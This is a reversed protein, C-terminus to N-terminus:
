LKEVMDFWEQSSAVNGRSWCSGFYYTVPEGPIIATYLLAHNNGENCAEVKAPRPMYVAVGIMGEEPEISQDSPREWIAIRDKWAREEVVDHRLMGCAVVLQDFDGKYTDVVKCFNTGSTVTVQKDLSVMHGDVEWEPYHLTFTIEDDGEVIDYSRYNTAPFVLRGEVVPASAGGGLSVSVKYCDKGGHDHHYYDPDEEVAHRYWDNAVLAGPKKVWIDFGPSTPNGELAEGYARYAIFENEWVFDDAREPVARAMVKAGQEPAANDNQKANKCDTVAFLAACVALM